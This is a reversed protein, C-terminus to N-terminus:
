ILKIMIIALLITIMIGIIWWGSKDDHKEHGGGHTEHAGGHSKCCDMEVVEWWELGKSNFM